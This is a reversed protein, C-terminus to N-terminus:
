PMAEAWTMHGEFGLSTAMARYRDRYDRYAAEDGHARALLARSRLLWIERIALGSDAQAACALRQVQADAEDIDADAGRALLSEVLAAVAVAHFVADGSRLERDAVARLLEIAADFDRTRAKDKALELDIPPLVPRLFRLAAERATGLLRLGEERQPSDQQALILGRLFLAVELAVDDGYRQALELTDASEQVAGADALLAGSPVGFGYKWFLLMPYGVPAYDRCMAAGRESDQKWGSEGRCLRAAAHAMTAVSLPSEIILHGQHADGDALKIVTSALRLVEGTEGTTVKAVIATSILAATLTPDAIPEILAVLQSALASSERYRGRFFLALVHGAMAMALSVKDDAAASLERLEDFGAEDLGGVRFATGCLLARPAIRMGARDPEDAPLREAVQRARQWSLRAAKIDRFNLWTGARMHWAFAAHLDGAAELHEAILAANEDVSAPDREEIAAAVRRHLEARDSKLQSEYAVARILPHHFVYEPQRTFRVQDILQAAM